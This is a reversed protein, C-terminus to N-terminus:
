LSKTHRYSLTFNALDQNQLVTGHPGVTGIGLMDPTFTLRPFQIKQLVANLDDVADWAM